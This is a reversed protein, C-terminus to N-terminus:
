FLFFLRNQKKNFEIFLEKGDLLRSLDDVDVISGHQKLYKSILEDLCITDLVKNQAYKEITNYEIQNRQM